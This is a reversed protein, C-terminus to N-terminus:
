KRVLATQWQNLEGAFAAELAAALATYARRKAVDPNVAGQRGAEIKFTFLAGRKGSITGDLAPYYSVGSDQRQVGEEVRVVCLASAVTKSNETAFGSAALAKVMAQYVIRDHDVLCEVYVRAKERATIQKELLASFAADTESFLEGAKAPHLVQAFDRAANFEASDAYVAAAGYRLVANFPETEEDAAKVLTLFTDAAKKASPEYVTWGENRNIYAVTVWVKKAQDYWPDEAYRVAALRTHSEVLINEETRSESASVGDRETWSIRRSQQGSVERVFYRSLEALANLEAAEKGSGEGRGTVYENRPYAAETKGV